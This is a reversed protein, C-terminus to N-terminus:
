RILISSHSRLSSSVRPNMMGNATKVNEHGHAAVSVGSKLRSRASVNGGANISAGAEQKNHGTKIKASPGAEVGIPAIPEAQAGNRVEQYDQKVETKASKITTEGSARVETATKATAEATSSPQIRATTATSSSVASNSSVASSKADIRSSAYTNNSVTQSMASGAILTAVALFLTTKM